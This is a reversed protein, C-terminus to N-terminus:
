GSPLQQHLESHLSTFLLDIFFTKNYVEKPFFLLHDFFDLDILWSYNFTMLHRTQISIHKSITGGFFVLFIIRLIIFNLCLNFGFFYVFGLHRFQVLLPRMFIDGTVYDLCVWWCPCSSSTCTFWRSAALMWSWEAMLKPRTPIGQGRQPTLLLVWVSASCRMVWSPSPRFPNLSYFFNSASHHLGSQKHVVSHVLKMTPEISYDQVM